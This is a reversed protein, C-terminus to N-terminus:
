PRARSWPPEGRGAGGVIALGTHVAAWATARPEGTKGLAELAVRIARRATDELAVPYGFCAFFAPGAMPLVHGEFRQVLDAWGARVTQLRQHQDEPDLEADSSWELGALLITVQRREPESAHPAPAPAAPAPQIAVPAPSSAAPASGLLRRLDTAFDAATTYRDTVRKALAKLCIQELEAPLHPVLQRPPQPEDKIIQLLLENVATARFPHRGTLMRYLIVGLSYIDTRGDIRHSAGRAQEPSMYLPTGLVTGRDLGANGDTLALGFDVLIPRREPTLMVNSLKIDRHITLAAHAHALADALDAVIRVTEPWAPQATKLWDDLSGGEIFDSVIFCHGDQIGADFVTVIGPHRFQALRRAEALAQEAEVETFSRHSVKIAVKRRLQEDFAAYVIGFGGRGRKELVRYRGFTPPVIGSSPSVPHKSPTAQYPVTDMESCAAAAEGLPASGPTNGHPDTDRKDDPLPPTTQDVSHM